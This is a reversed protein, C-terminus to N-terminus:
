MNRLLKYEISDVLARWSAEIVDGSVGVTTWASEGDTSTILVRVRAATADKSDIVRVKFDNLRVARIQPYFVCLARRLANDLANVPGNGEAASIEEREGVRIKIVATASCDRKAPQEGITKFQLLEFSPTYLGLVKRVTLEFSADAAEFQYGHYELEKIERAIEGVQDETLQLGPVVSRIKEELLARGAMESVLFRRRNGVAEPAVHEFSGSVKRVGAAHMGAKHAFAAGGVYPEGAPLSVNCIDSLYRATRTLKKVSGEPVCRWGGKLQLNGILTCLNANGCREGYGLFTGQVHRAGAEVAAMSNAVALGGDNHCHIGVEAPFSRCVLATLRAIEGPFTGGNTDCLCLVDAGGEVAAELTKLAYDPNERAGDFFHEADYIVERGAAKFWAVTDRVMRLNEELPCGLVELVHLDWSKGFLVVTPTGSEKLARCQPDEEPATYKRCTAGFAAAKATHSRPEGKLREFFARDKQNSGPNGAEIYSLGFDSLTQFISWKDEVSFSIGESQASERLTTDLLHLTREM